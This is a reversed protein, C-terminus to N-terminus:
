ELWDHGEEGLLVAQGLLLLFFLLHLGFLASLLGDILQLALRARLLLLLPLLRAHYLELTYVRVHHVRDLLRRHHLLLVLRALLALLHVVLGLQLALLGVDELQEVISPRQQNHQLKIVLIIEVGPAINM